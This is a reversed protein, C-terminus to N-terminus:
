RSLPSLFVGVPRQPVASKGFSAGLRERTGAESFAGTKNAPDDARPVTGASDAKPTESLVRLRENLCAYTREGGIEVDPCAPLTQASAHSAIVMSVVLAVGCRGNM